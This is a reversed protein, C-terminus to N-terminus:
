SSPHHWSETERCVQTYPAGEPPITPGAITDAAFTSGYALRLFQLNPSFLRGFLLNDWFGKPWALPHQLLM